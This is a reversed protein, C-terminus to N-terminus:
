EYYFLVSIKIIYKYKYIKLVQIQYLKRKLYSVDFSDDFLIKQTTNGRIETTNSKKYLYYNHQLDPNRKECVSM